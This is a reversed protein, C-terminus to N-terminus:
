RRGRLLPRQPSPQEVQKKQQTDRLKQLTRPRASGDSEIGNEQQFRRLAERTTENNTGDVEGNYYGNNKLIRQTEATAHQELDPSSKVAQPLIESAVRSVEADTDTFSITVLAPGLEAPFQNAKILHEVVRIALQRQRANESSLANLLNGARDANRQALDIERQQKLAADSERQQQSAILHGAVVITVPILVGTLVKLVLDFKAMWTSQAEEAM